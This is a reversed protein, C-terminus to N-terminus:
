GNLLPLAMKELLRGLTKREEGNLPATLSAVSAQATEELTEQIRRSKATLFVRSVRGDEPDPKRRIYGDEELRALARTVAAKDLGLRDAFEQQKRGDQVYLGFLYQYRGPGLGLPALERDLHKMLSRYVLTLYRAESSTFDNM